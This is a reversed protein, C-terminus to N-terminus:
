RKKYTIRMQMVEQGTPGPGYMTYIRAEADKHESMAAPQASLAADSARAVAVGAQGLVFVFEGEGHRGVQPNQQARFQVAATQSVNPRVYAAIEDSTVIGDHDADAAGKLADLLFYTFLGHGRWEHAEEGAGGATMALRVPKSTVQLLYDSLGAPLGIARTSLALGSYCADAVFMVHKAPYGAFWDQLERMSIGTARLRERDGDVPVLYGLAMDGEGTSVGHGAFYVFVRDDKGLRTPLRDGLLEGVARRTAAADLLLAVEFGQSELLAAMDRADRVAGRLKPVSANQYGDIGIVVAHSRAYLTVEGTLGKHGGAPANYVVPPLRRTEEAGLGPVLIVVLWTAIRGSIAM